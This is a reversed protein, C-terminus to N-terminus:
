REAVLSRSVINQEPVDGRGFGGINRITTEAIAELAEHTLFGQHATILVNPFTLLRAFADDQIVTDSLDRYFLDAEEEYVDLGLSGIRGGKLGRIVAGTDIVAGRSTNILMVGQKMRAIADDAIVHRTSPTLPCNLSIIDSAALLEDLPVYRAGLELCRASRRPDSVVVECGMGRMLAIVCSGIRGAGVVGVVKGRMRFGMLGSLSFNGERVRAHARHTKRNLTMMLALAHEAVSEPSYSPVRAVRVGLEDATDLDVRNFGACRLAIFRTGGRVLARIVHEDLTDNAFACVCEFGDALLATRESLSPEVFVFEHDTDRTAHELYAREFPKTSFVITRM